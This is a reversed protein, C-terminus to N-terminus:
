GQILFHESRGIEALITPSVVNAATKRICEKCLKKHRAQKVRTKGKEQDAAGKTKGVRLRDQSTVRSGHRGNHVLFADGFSDAINNQVTAPSHGQGADGPIER